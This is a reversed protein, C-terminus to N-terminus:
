NNVNIGILYPRKLQSATYHHPLIGVNRLDMSSGDESATVKFVAVQVKM